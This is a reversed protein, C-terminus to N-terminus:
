EVLDSLVCLNYPTATKRELSAPQFLAWGGLSLLVRLVFNFNM